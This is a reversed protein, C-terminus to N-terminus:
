SICNLALLIERTKQLSLTHRDMTNQLCSIYASRNVRAIENLNHTVFGSQKEEEERIEAADAHRRMKAVVLRLASADNQQIAVATELCLEDAVCIPISKKTTTSGSSNSSNSSGSSGSSGSSDRSGRTGRTGRNGSSGSSGSCQSGSSGSGFM